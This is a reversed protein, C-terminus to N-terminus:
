VTDEEGPFLRAVDYAMERNCRDNYDRLLEGLDLDLMGEYTDFVQITHGDCFSALADLFYKLEALNTTFSSYDYVILTSNHLPGVRRPNYRLQRHTTPFLDGISNVLDKIYRSAFYGSGGNAYYIRPKLDTYKYAWRVECPGEIEGGTYCYYRELDVSKVDVQKLYQLYDLEPIRPANLLQYATRRGVNNTTSYNPFLTM